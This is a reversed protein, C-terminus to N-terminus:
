VNSKNHPNSGPMKAYAAQTTDAFPGKAGSTEWIDVSVVSNM